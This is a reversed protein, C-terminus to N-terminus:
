ARAAIATAFDGAARADPSFLLFVSPEVLELEVLV